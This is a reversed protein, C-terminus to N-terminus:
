AKTGNKELWEAAAFADAALTHLEAAIMDTSDDVGGRLTATIPEGESQWYEFMGEVPGSRHLPPTNTAHEEPTAVCWTPCPVTPVTSTANM